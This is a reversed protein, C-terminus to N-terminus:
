DLKLDLQVTPIVSASKSAETLGRNLARSHSQMEVCLKFAQTFVPEDYRKNFREIAGDKSAECLYHCLNEDQVMKRKKWDPDLPCLPADCHHFKPCQSMDLM